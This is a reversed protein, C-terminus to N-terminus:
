NLLIDLEKIIGKITIDKRPSQCRRILEWVGDSYKYPKISGLTSVATAPVQLGFMWLMLEAIKDIDLNPGQGRLVEFNGSCINLKAQNDDMLLVQKAALNNYIFGSSHIADLGCVVDRMVSLKQHTSLGSNAKDLSTAARETVVQLVDPNPMTWGYIGILHSSRKCNYAYYLSTISEMWSEDSIRQIVRMIYQTENIFSWSKDCLHLTCNQGRYLLKGRKLEGRTVEFKIGHNEIELQALMSLVRSASAGLHERSQIQIDEKFFEIQKLSTEFTTHYSEMKNKCADVVSDALRNADLQSILINVVATRAPSGRPNNRKEQLAIEIIALLSYTNQLEFRLNERAASVLAYVLNTLSFGTAEKYDNDNGVFQYISELNRKLTPNDLAEMTEVVKPLLDCSAENELLNDVQVEVNNSVSNVIINRLEHCLTHMQSFNGGSPVGNPYKETVDPHLLLLEYATIKNLVLKPAMEMADQRAKDIAVAIIQKLQENKAEVFTTSRQYIDLEASRASQLVRAMEKEEIQLEEHKQSICYFCRGHCRMLACVAISIQEMLYSDLSKSMDIKFSEFAETFKRLNACKGKTRAEKVKRMSLANFTGLYSRDDLLLHEKLQDRVKTAISMIKDDKCGDEEDEGEETDSEKDMEAAKADNDIKNCVYFFKTRPCREKFYQINKRDDPRLFCKGDIVYILIPIENKSIVENVVKNLTENENRGPSDILEVGYKLLEHNLGIIVTQFVCASKGRDEEKLIVLEKLMDRGTRDGWFDNGSLPRKSGPVEKGTQDNLSVYPTDSYKIWIIRSTCTIDAVPVVQVGLMENILSSKGCNKEGIVAIVTKSSLTDNISKEEDGTILSSSTGFHERLPSEFKKTQKVLEVLRRFLKDRKKCVADM